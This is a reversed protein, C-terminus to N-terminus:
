RRVPRPGRSLRARDPRRVWFRPGTPCAHVLSESPSTASRSCVTGGPKSVSSSSTPLSRTSINMRVFFNDAKGTRARVPTPFRIVHSGESRQRPRSTPRRPAASSFRPPTTSSSPTRISRSGPSSAPVTRRWRWRLLAPARASAGARVSTSRQPGVWDLGPQPDSRGGIRSDTYPPVSWSIVADGNDNARLTTEACWPGTDAVVQPTGISEAPDAARDVSRVEGPDEFDGPVWSFIASGDDDAAVNPSFSAGLPGAVRQPEDWAGDFRATDLVTRRTKWVVVATGRRGADVDYSYTIVPLSSPDRWRPSQPQPAM